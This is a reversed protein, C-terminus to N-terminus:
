MLADGVGPRVVTTTTPGHNDDHRPLFKIEGGTYHKPPNLCVLLSLFSRSGHGSEVGVDTHPKFSDGSEYRFVEVRGALGCARWVSQAPLGHQRIKNPQFSAVQEPLLDRVRSWLSAAFNRDDWTVVGCRQAEDTSLPWPACGDRCPFTPTRVGHVGQRASPDKRGDRHRGALGM